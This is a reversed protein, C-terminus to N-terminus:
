PVPIVTIRPREGVPGPAAHRGPRTPPGLPGIDAPGYVFLLFRILRQRLSQRRPRATPLPTVSALRTAPPSVKRMRASSLEPAMSNQLTM